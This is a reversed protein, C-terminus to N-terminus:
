GARQLLQDDGATDNVTEFPDLSELVRGLLVDTQTVTTKLLDMSRAQATLRQELTSMTNSLLREMASIIQETSPSESLKAEHDDLRSEIQGFRALTVAEHAAMRSEVSAVADRLEATSSSDESASTQHRKRRTTMLGAALVGAVFIAVGSLLGTDKRMTENYRKLKDVALLVREFEAYKTRVPKFQM